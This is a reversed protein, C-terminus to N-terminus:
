SASNHLKMRKNKHTEEEEVDNDHAAAPAADDSKSAAADNAAPKNTDADPPVLLVPKDADADPPDLLVALRQRAMQLWDIHSAYMHIVDDIDHWAVRRIEKKDTVDLQLAKACDARSCPFPM